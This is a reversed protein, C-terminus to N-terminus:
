LGPVSYSQLQIKSMLGFGFNENLFYPRRGFAYASASPVFDGEAARIIFHLADFVIDFVKTVM